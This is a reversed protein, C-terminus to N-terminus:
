AMSPVEPAAASRQTQGVALARLKGAKVQALLAPMTGFIFDVQGGLLDNIAPAEGKYPVHLMNVGAADALLEAALQSQNGIGASAFKVAGPKSRAANILDAVSKYPSAANVVLLFSISTTQTVPAFDRLTDYPVKKYIHQNITLASPSTMLFTHGDNARAVVEGAIMGNAGARNDIVVAKGLADTLKQGILRAAIDISGGASQSVVFKIPQTPWGSQARALGIGAAALPFILCATRRKM